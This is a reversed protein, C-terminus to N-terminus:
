PVLTLPLGVVGSDFADVRRGLVRGEESSYVVQVWAIDEFKRPLTVTTCGIGTSLDVSGVQEASGLEVPGHTRTRTVGRGYGAFVTATSGELEALGVEITLSDVARAWTVPSYSRSAETESTAPVDCTLGAYRDEDGYVEALLFDAAMASVGDRQERDSVSEAGWAFDSVAQHGFGELNFFLNRSALEPTEFWENVMSPFSTDDETGALYLASGDFDLMADYDRSKGEYPMVGVLTRVRPELYVLRGLTAGGMSHGLATWDDDSAMGFLWSAEKASEGELWHFAAQTDLAFADTNMFLGNQTNMNVVVFGQSALHNCFDDYMWASGLWGHLFAAVPFPGSDSDADSASASSVAPYHVKVEVEGAADDHFTVYRGSVEYPGAELAQATSFLGVLALIM